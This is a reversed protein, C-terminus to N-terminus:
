DRSVLILSALPAGWRAANKRDSAAGRTDGQAERVQARADFFEARNPEQQIAHDLDTEAERYHHLAAQTLSRQYYNEGSADLAVAHDLDGLSKELWDQDRYAQGRLMYGKAWTPTFTLALTLDKMALKPQMLNLRAEARLQYSLSREPALKISRTADADALSNEGLKLHAMARRELVSSPDAGLRLALDLRAIADRYLGSDMYFDAERIMGALQRRQTLSHYAHAASGLGFSVAVAATTIAAM